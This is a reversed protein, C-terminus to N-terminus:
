HIISCGCGGTVDGDGGGGGCGSGRSPRSSLWDECGSGIGFSGSDPYTVENGESDTFIFYYRPCDGEIAETHIYTGNAGTGREVDMSHCTGDVNVLARSPPDADYWNARFDVEVGTRNPHHAGSAIKQSPSGGSFDQGWWNGHFGPGMSGHDGLINYRHGNSMRFGCAPNTEPEWFWLYFVDIPDGPGWAINEGSPPTGFAAVRDSWSTGSCPCTGGTCACSASGDCPGPDYLDGIGDVLTCPSDHALGCGCSIQNAAHFRAARNLDYSYVLPPKVTYCDADACQPCDALDTDPDSRARNTMVLVMREEWNPFGNEPEGYPSVDGADAIVIALAV